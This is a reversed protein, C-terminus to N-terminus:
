FIEIETLENLGSWPEERCQSKGLVIKVYRGRAPGPSITYEWRHAPDAPSYEAPVMPSAYDAHESRLTNEPHIGLVKLPTFGTGDASVFFRVESPVFRYVGGISRFRLAISELDKEEALDITIEPEPDERSSAWFNEPDDTGYIGDTLSQASNEYGPLCGSVLCKKGWALDKPDKPAPFPPPKLHSKQLSCLRTIQRCLPALRRQVEKDTPSGEALISDIACRCELLRFRLSNRSWPPLQREMQRVLELARASRSLDGSVNWGTRRHSAELIDALERFAGTTKTSFFWGSYEALVDDASRSKDWMYALYQFKAADEYYGESYPWCASVRDKMLDWVRANFGTLINAGYGGWPFSGYMSIEPFAALPIHPPRRDLETQLDYEDQGTIVGAVAEAEPSALFGNLGAIEGENGRFYDMKWASLWIECRPFLERYRPIIERVAKIYGNGGYPVCDSCWCGGQDYPWIWFIDVNDFATAAQALNDAILRRAEPISPCMETGYNGPNKVRVRYEEPSDAYGENALCTLGFKMGLSNATKQIHRLRGIQKQADPDAFGMYQHMDFWVQVANCGWLVMDELLGDIEELPACEYYNAFHSALYMGRLDMDPTEAYSGMPCTLLGKAFSCQRLFSGIGAMLDNGEILVSDAGAMVSFGPEQTHRVTIVFPSPGAAVPGCRKQIEKALLGAGRLSLDDGSGSLLLADTRVARTGAAFAPLSMLVTILVFLLAKM